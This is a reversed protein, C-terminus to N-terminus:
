PEFGPGEALWELRWPSIERHTLVRSMGAVISDAIATRWKQGPKAWAHGILFPERTYVDRVSDIERRKASKCSAKNSM